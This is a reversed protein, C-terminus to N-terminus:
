DSSAKKKGFFDTKGDKKISKGFEVTVELTFEL